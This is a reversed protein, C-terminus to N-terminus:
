SGDELASEFQRERCDIELHHGARSPQRVAEVEVSLGGTEVRDGRLVDAGAPTYLVHTIVREQLMAAEREASSAPRIRGAIQGLLVYDIGWGGQGNPTRRLRSVAFVNNLLSIFVSSTM